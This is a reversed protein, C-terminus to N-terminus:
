LGVRKIRTIDYFKATRGVRNSRQFRIIVVIIDIIVM